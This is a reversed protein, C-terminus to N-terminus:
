ARAQEADAPQPATRVEDPDPTRGLTSILYALGRTDPWSELVFRVLLTMPVSLIAGIPGLIFGWFIVSFMVAFPQLQLGTGMLKPQVINSVAGNIVIYVIIVTLASTWGFQLLAFIAPPVLSIVFGINPIFGLFFSLIGWLVAFEVGMRLLFLTNFLAVLFNVTSTLVVFRRLSVSFDSLRTFLGPSVIGGLRREFGFADLLMFAFLILTIVLGSIGSVLWSALDHANQIFAEPDLTKGASESTSQNFGLSELTKQISAQTEQMQPKYQPLTDVVASVSVAILLGLLLVGALVSGFVLLFALWRPLRKQVLWRQAPSLTLVLVLALFLGSFIGRAGMLGGLVITASALTLLLLALASLSRTRGDTSPAAPEVM